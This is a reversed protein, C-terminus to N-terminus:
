RATAADYNIGRAASAPRVGHRREGNVRRYSHGGSRPAAKLNNAAAFAMAKQVDATSTPTLIAAPMFGNYNANFVKKASAFQPDSPLLM